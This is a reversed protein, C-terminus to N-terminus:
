PKRAWLIQFHANSNIRLVTTALVSLRRSFLNDQRFSVQGPVRATAFNTVTPAALDIM